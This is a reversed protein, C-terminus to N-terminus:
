PTRRLALKYCNFRQGMDLNPRLKSALGSQQYISLQRRTRVEFQRWPTALMTAEQHM